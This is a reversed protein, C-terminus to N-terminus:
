DHGPNYLVQWDAPPEFWVFTSAAEDDESWLDEDTGQNWEPKYAPQTPPSAPGALLLISSNAEVEWQGFYVNLPLWSIALDGGPAVAAPEPLLVVDIDDPHLWRAHHTTDETILEATGVYVGPWPYSAGSYCGGWGDFEGCGGSFVVPHDGGEDDTIRTIRQFERTDRSHFFWHVDALAPEAGSLDIVLNVHEWDGEHNNAFKDYPMWFWYAILAQQAARDWWSVHVYDVPRYPATAPDDGQIARWETIWTADEYGPGSNDGPCDVGYILAPDLAALDATPLDAAAVALTPSAHDDDSAAYAYLDAGAEYCYDVTVPWIDPGSFVMAPQFREALARQEDASLDGERLAEPAGDGPVGASDPRAAVCAAGDWSWGGPCDEAPEGKDQGACGALAFLFLTTHRM